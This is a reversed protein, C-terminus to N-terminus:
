LPKYFSLNLVLSRVGLEVQESACGYLKRYTESLEELPGTHVLSLVEMKPLIRTKINGTEVAQAVPLGVEIDFGEKISTVFQFICFAPGIIHERPIHQTLEDLVSYLEKREKINLRITAVLIEKITKYKIGLKKLSM